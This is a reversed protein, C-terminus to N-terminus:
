SGWMAKQQKDNNDLISLTHTNNEQDSQINIYPPITVSLKGLPGEVEVTSERIIKSGRVGKRQVPPPIFRFTVEPPLSLPVRGIKSKCPKSTSFSAHKQRQASFAPLLFSPLTIEFASANTSTKAM